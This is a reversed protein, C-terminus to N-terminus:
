FTYSVNLTTAIPTAKINHHSFETYKIQAAMSFHDSFFYQIGAEVIPSFIDFNDTIEQNHPATGSFPSVPWVYHTHNTGSPKIKPLGITGALIHGENANVMDYAVGVGAYPEFNGADPTSGMFYYQGILSAQAYKMSGNNTKITTAADYATQLGFHGETITLDIEPTIKTKDFKNHFANDKAGLMLADAGIGLTIHTKSEQSLLVHQYAMANISFAATILIPLMKTKM